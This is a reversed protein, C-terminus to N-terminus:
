ELISFLGLRLRRKSEPATWGGFGEELDQAAAVLLREASPGAVVEFMPINKLRKIKTLQIKKCKLQKKFSKGIKLDIKKIGTAKKLPKV